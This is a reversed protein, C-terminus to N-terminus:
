SQYKEDDLWRPNAVYVKARISPQLASVLGQLDDDFVGMRIARALSHDDPFGLSALLRRHETRHEAHVPLERAIIDLANLAVRIDFQRRRSDPMSEARAWWERVSRLIEVMTPRDHPASM